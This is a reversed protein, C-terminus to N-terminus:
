NTAAIQSFAFLPCLFVTFDTPTPGPVMELQSPTFNNVTTLRQEVRSGSRDGDQTLASTATPASREQKKKIATLQVTRGIEQHGTEADCM